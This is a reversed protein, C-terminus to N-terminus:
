FVVDLEKLPDFTVGEAYHQIYISKQITSTTEM